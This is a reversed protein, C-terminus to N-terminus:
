YGFTLLATLMSILPVSINDDIVKTPLSEMVTAVFAVLAVRQVTETLDLQFYGLYSFYFLMGISVLFGFLFMSCSGAWSKHQNYPLKQEGFRRGIIDAIGDGGCMMAVMIVGTPSNRWFIVVCLILMLIYYLPGRLLEKPNGERTVSKVLGKDTTLSFGNLVLRLCNLLPVLSAFYRAEASNSSQINAMLGHLDARVLHPGVKQELERTYNSIHHIYCMCDCMNVTRVLLPTTRRRIACPKSIRM